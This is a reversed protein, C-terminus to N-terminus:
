EAKELLAAALLPGGDFGCTTSGSFKLSYHSLTAHPRLSIM